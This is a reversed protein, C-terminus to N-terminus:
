FVVRLLASSLVEPQNLPGSESADIRHSNEASVAQQRRAAAPQIIFRLNLTFKLTSTKLSLACNYSAIRLNLAFQFFCHSM